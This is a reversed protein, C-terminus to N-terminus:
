ILSIILLGVVVIVSLSLVLKEIEIITENEDPSAGQRVAIHSLLISVPFLILALIFLLILSCIFVTFVGIVSNLGLIALLLAIALVLAPVCFPIWFLIRLLLNLKNM